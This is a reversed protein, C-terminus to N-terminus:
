CSSQNRLNLCENIYKITLTLIYHDENSMLWIFLQQENLIETNKCFAFVKSLYEQRLANYKPCKLMFHAEDEDADLNCKTCQRAKLKLQTRENLPAKIYRATEINLKHASIRIKTYNTIYTKPLNINLYPEYNITNKYQRFTRLKNKENPDKRTDNFINTTFYTDYVIKMTKISKKRITKTTLNQITAIDLKTMKLIEDSCSYWAQIGKDAMMKDDLFSEKLLGTCEASELRVRYCLINALVTIMIPYRGLEARVAMNSSKQNVNLLIKCFKTHLKEVIADEYLYEPSNNTKYRKTNTKFTGWIESGYTLIPIVTKDFIDLYLKPKILDINLLKRLKFYARQARRHLDTKAEDFEGKYNIIIGLYKYSYVREIEHSDIHYTYNNSSTDKRNEFIIVKSKNYNVELKWDQCYNHVVNLQNQLGIPSESLLILDDAYLLCNIKTNGITVPHCEYTFSSTLDNIYINFFSSSLNDGQKVGVSPKLFDSIQDKLKLCVENESYMCKIINFFHTGIGIKKLKYYLGTHWVKDFAKSLDIFCAYVKKKHIKTYKKILTHLTYIHDSTRKKAQFGIQCHSIINHDLMYKTLRNNLVRNFLKGFSSNITLCRYNNPDSMCKSKYITCIYGQNWEKPYQGSLLIDNFIKTLLTITAASANKFMENCINDLGPSKNNKLQSISIRIEKMTIKYDLENFINNRELKCLKSKIKEEINSIKNDTKLELLYDYWDGPQIKQSPDNKSENDNLLEDLIKWYQKPNEYQLAELKKVLNSKYTRAAQKCAKKYKKKLCYFSLRLQKDYPYNAMLQGRQIVLRKLNYLSNTYWKNKNTNYKRKKQKNQPIGNHKPLQKILLRSLQKVINNVNEPNCLNILDNIEKESEASNINNIFTTKVNDTWKVTKNNLKSLNITRYNNQIPEIIKIFTTIMCHDSLNGIFNEVHFYLIDNYISESIISYDVVSSGNYTHCTYKGLTDGLCRGNLIRLHSQVCIELLHKGRNDIVKDQSMRNPINDNHYIPIITDSDYNVSDPYKNTRANFDGVLMINGKKSYAIIDEEIKELPDIQQRLSYTSSPPPDYVACIYLDLKINFFNKNLKLWFFDESKGQLISIGRKLNEKCLFAIGGSHTKATKLPTRNLQFCYYNPICIQEDPMCKTETLIILDNKHILDLFNNDTTKDQEKSFLGNINWCAIKIAPATPNPFSKSKM